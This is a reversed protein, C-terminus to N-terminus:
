DEPSKYQEWLKLGEVLHADDKARGYLEAISLKKYEDPWEFWAADACDQESEGDVWEESDPDDKWDQEIEEARSNRWGSQILDMDPVSEALAEALSRLRQIQVEDEDKPIELSSKLAPVSTMRLGSGYISHDPGAVMTNEHLLKRRRQLEQETIKM